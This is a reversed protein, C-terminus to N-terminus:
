ILKLLNYLSVQFHTKEAISAEVRCFLGYLFFVQQSDAWGKYKRLNNWKCKEWMRRKYNFFLYSFCIGDWSSAGWFYAVKRPFLIVHWLQIQIKFHM